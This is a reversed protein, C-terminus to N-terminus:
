YITKDVKDAFEKFAPLTLDRNLQTLTAVDSDQCNGEIFNYIFDDRFGINAADTATKGYSITNINAWIAASLCMPCPYCSTYLTCVTLDHTGLNNCADRIAQMEGHCTPDHNVLVQNHGHGIIEGNKVIVAGFPGGENSILNSEAENAAIKMFDKHNM